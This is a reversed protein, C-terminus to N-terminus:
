ATKKTEKEQEKKIKNEAMKEKAKHIDDKVNEKVDHAKEKVKEVGNKVDEKVHAAKEKVDEAANHLKEKMTEKQEKKEKDMTRIGKLNNVVLKNYLDKM